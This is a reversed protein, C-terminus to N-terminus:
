EQPSLLIATSNCTGTRCPTGPPRYFANLAGKDVVGTASSVSDRPDPQQSACAISNKANIPGIRSPSGPGIMPILCPILLRCSSRVANFRPGLSVSHWRACTNRLLID